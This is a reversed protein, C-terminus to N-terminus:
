LKNKDEGHLRMLVGNSTIVKNSPPIAGGELCSSMSGTQERDTKVRKKQRDRNRGVGGGERDKEEHQEQKREREGDDAYGM